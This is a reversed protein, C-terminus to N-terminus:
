KAAQVMWTEKAVTHMVKRRSGRSPTQRLKEPIERMPEANAAAMCVGM